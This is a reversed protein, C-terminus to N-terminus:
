VDVKCETSTDDGADGDGAYESSNDSEMLYVHWNNWSGELHWYYSGEDLSRVHCHKHSDQCSGHSTQEREVQMSLYVLFLNFVGFSDDANIQKVAEKAWVKDAGDDNFGILVIDVLPINIVLSVM